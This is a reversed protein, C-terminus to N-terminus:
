ELKGELRLRRTKPGAVAAERRPPHRKGFKYADHIAIEFGGPRAAKALGRFQANCAYCIAVTPVLLYLLADLAVAVGVSIWMTFPGLLLGVGALVLGLTRNFDRQAYLDSSGCVPCVEVRGCAVADAAEPLPTEGGCRPCRAASTEPLLRLEVAGGCRPCAFGLELPAGATV